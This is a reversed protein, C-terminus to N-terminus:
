FKQSFVTGNNTLSASESLYPQKLYLVTVIHFVFSPGHRFVAEHLWVDGV